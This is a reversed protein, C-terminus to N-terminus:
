DSLLESFGAGATAAGGASEGRGDVRKGEGARRRALQGHIACGAYGGCCVGFAHAMGGLTFHQACRPDGDNIFPCAHDSAGRTERM